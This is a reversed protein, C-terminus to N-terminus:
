SRTSGPWRWLYGEAVRRAIQEGEPKIEVSEHGSEGVIAVLSQADLLKLV